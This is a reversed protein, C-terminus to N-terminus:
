ALGPLAVSVASPQAVPRGSWLSSIPVFTIRESHPYAFEGAHLVVGSVFRDGLRERLWVLHRADQHKPASAAKVEIAVVAGDAREAIIDIEHEGNRDRLHFLQTTMESTVLEARLQALVFSELLRGLLDGDRLVGRRDVGLLPGVLAPEVLHRKPRGSLRTLRNTSWAPLRETILLHELVDDYALATSRDLTAADILTKLEVEGALNAAISRLYRRLRVPDRRGGALPVDRAVLQDVYGALWRQRGAESAAVTAGPLGGWLAREVYGAIDVAPHAPRANALQGVFMRQLPGADAACSELERQCMPMLALRVVRGTAPWGAATLDAQSSGTLIFRGAGAGEDVARKVAGLIEPVLQWEDIAVPGDFQALAVDPDAAVALAVEPRDLRLTSPAHRRATTTKGSGRPGVILVAPLERLVEALVTDLLRPVYATM